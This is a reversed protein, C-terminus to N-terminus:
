KRRAYSRPERIPGGIHSWGKGTVVRHVVNVSVGFEEALQQLTVGGAAKKERMRVVDAPQLKAAVQAVGRVYQGEKTM